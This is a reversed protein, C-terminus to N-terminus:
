AQRMCELLRGHVRSLSKYTNLISLGLVSAIQQPKFNQYYRLEILKYERESLRQLCKKLKEIRSDVKTHAQQVIPVIKEFLENDLLIHSNNKQHKRFDLIKYYAIQIGWSVFDKIPKCDPYKQWMTNATEQMLDDADEYNRVLSLIFAYIRMQNILLLQLFEHSDKIEM